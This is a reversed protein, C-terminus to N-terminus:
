VAKAFRGTKISKAMYPVHYPNEICFEAMQKFEIEANVPLWLTVKKLGKQKMKEEYRKNRNM